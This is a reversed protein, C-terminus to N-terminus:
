IIGGFHRLSVSIAPQVLFYGFSIGIFISIVPVFSLKRSLKHKEAYSCMSFATIGMVPLAIILSPSLNWASVAMFLPICVAMTIKVIRYQDRVILGQSSFLMHMKRMEQYDRKSFNFKRRYSGRNKRTFLDKLFQKM